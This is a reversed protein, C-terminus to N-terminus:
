PTRNWRKADAGPPCMRGLLLVTRVVVAAPTPAAVSPEGASAFADPARGGEELGEAESSIPPGEDAWGGAVAWDGM